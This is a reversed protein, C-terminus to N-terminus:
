VFDPSLGSQHTVRTKAAPPIWLLPPNTGPWLHGDRIAYNQAFAGDGSAQPGTEVIAELRGVIKPFEHDNFQASKVWDALTAVDSTALTQITTTNIPTTPNIEIFGPAAEINIEISGLTAKPEETGTKNRQVQPSRDV